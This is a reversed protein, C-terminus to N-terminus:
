CTSSGAICTGLKSKARIFYWRSGIHHADLRDFITGNKAPVTFTRNDTATIGDSTGALLYRRNPYTQCPASAFYRNGICFTKALSYYFPLDPEDWYGMAESDTAAFGDM